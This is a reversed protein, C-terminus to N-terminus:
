GAEDGIDGVLNEAWEEAEAERARDHAMERYAEEIDHQVVHPRALSNLFASIQGRGVKQHLGEYVEREVTITLKKRAAKMVGGTRIIRIIRVSAALILSRCAGPAARRAETSVLSAM